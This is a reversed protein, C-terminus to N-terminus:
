MTAAGQPNLDLGQELSVPLPMEAPLRPDPVPTGTVMKVPVVGAWVPLDYDPEDDIPPGTRVKATAEDIPFALVSTARMEKKNPARVEQWRGRAVREMFAELVTIKEEGEVARGRAFLVVSRYNYSHHFASRALVLGDLHTVAICAELGSALDKLLVSAPSGHIYVYDGVRWVAMPILRPRGEACYGVHGLLAEDLIGNIVEREYVGRKPVRKVRSRATKQIPKTVTM